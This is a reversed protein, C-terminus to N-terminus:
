RIVSIKLTQRGTLGGSVDLKEVVALYLGSAANSVEWSAQGTGPEGLFSAVLEGALSYIRVRLTPGSPGLFSVQKLGSSVRLLNPVAAVPEGERLGGGVVLINKTISGSPGGGGEWNVSLLYEGSTVYSGQDDTGDWDLTVPALASQILVQVCNPAGSNATEGPELVSGNIGVNTIGAGVGDDVWATLHKVVEGAENYVAAMVQALNRSVVAEQTVTTVVGSPGVSEVQIYYVGNSVPNGSSDLGNWVGLLNGQCYLLIQSGAGELRTITSGELTLSDVAQSLQATELSQLLEGAENYVGVKVTYSGTPTSTSIPSPTCYSAMETIKRIVNNNYDVVLLDCSSDFCLSVDHNFQAQLPPGGDGSYGSPVPPGQGAVTTIIGTVADVRRVVNNFDDTIFLNGNKDFVMNGYDYVQTDDNFDLSALTAPGGDGSYGPAGNGVMTTIVGTSHDVKRLVNNNSDCVWLNGSPDDIMADCGDLLAATAPGGDGAYGPNGPWFGVVTNIVGTATNVERIVNNGTDAILMNGWNDFRVLSPCTLEANAAPGGDGSYGPAGGGVVTTIIGTAASVKRIACNYYDAIYLNDQSDFAIGAPYFLLAQTAPGGDGSYGGSNLETYRGAYTTIISTVADVRRVTNSCADAIFINGHSDLAIDDPGALSALSAPGGDGAYAGIGNGVLTTITQAGSPYTAFIALIAGCALIKPSFHM